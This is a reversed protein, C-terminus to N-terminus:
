AFLETQEPVPMVRRLGKATEEWFTLYGDWICHEYDKPFTHRSRWYDFCEALSAFRYADEVNETMGWASLAPNHSYHGRWIYYQARGFLYGKRPRRRNVVHRETVQEETSPGADLCDPCRTDGEPCTPRGHGCDDSSLRFQDAFDRLAHISIQCGECNKVMSSAGAVLAQERTDFTKGKLSPHGGGGGKAHTYSYGYRWLGDEGQAVEVLCSVQAREPKPIEVRQPFTFVGYENVAHPGPHLLDTSGKKKASPKAM